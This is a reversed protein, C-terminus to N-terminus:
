PRGDYSEAYPRLQEVVAELPTAEGAQAKLRPNSAVPALMVRPGARRALFYMNFAPIHVAFDGSSQRYEVLRKVIDANGFSSSEYGQEKHIITVGTRVSGNITVPYITEASRTLLTNPDQGAQYGALGELGINYVEIPQGLQAQKVEDVSQFGLGKYNQDNVLNRLMAIASAAAEQPQQAPAVARHSRSCGTLLCIGLLLVVLVRMITAGAAKVSCRLKWDQVRM